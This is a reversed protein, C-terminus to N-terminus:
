GDSVCSCQLNFIFDVSYKKLCVRRNQPKIKIEEAHQQFAKRKPDQLNKHNNNNNNKNKIQEQQKTKNLQNTFNNLV